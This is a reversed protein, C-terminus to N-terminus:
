AKKTYRFGVDDFIKVGRIIASIQGLCAGGDALSGLPHLQNKFFQSNFIL